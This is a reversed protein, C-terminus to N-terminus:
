DTRACRRTSDRALPPSVGARRRLRASARFLFTASSDGRHPREPVRLHRVSSTRRAACRSGTGIAKGVLCSTSAGYPDTALDFSKSWDNDRVDPVRFYADLEEVLEALKVPDVRPGGRPTTSHQAGRRVSRRRARHPRPWGDHVRPSRPGRRGRGLAASDLGARRSAAEGIYPRSRRGRATRIRTSAVGSPRRGSPRSSGAILAPWRAPSSRPSERTQEYTHRREVPVLVHIGEAARRRSRSSASRMRVEKVLLAVQIVEPVRTPPRNSTSSGFDAPGAQGGALVLHQPRHVGHEGDLRGLEDNVIPVRIKRKQRPTGRTSVEVGRPIWEAHAQALGESSTGARSGTPYRKLRSRATVSTRCFCRRSRGYYALLDGKTIREEPWFVKDLNSLRLVREGQRIEEQIPEERHVERAAKDERLGQFSPARLRGDHTWEVFEVECVLEPKM